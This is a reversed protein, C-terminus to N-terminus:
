MHSKLRSSKYIHVQCRETPFLNGTAKIDFNVIIYCVQNNDEHHLTQLSHFIVYPMGAALVAWDELKGKRIVYNCKPFGKVLTGAM